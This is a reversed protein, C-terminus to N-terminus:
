YHIHLISLLAAGTGSTLLMMILPRLNFRLQIGFLVPESIGFLQFLMAGISTHRIGEKKSKVFFALTMQHAAM